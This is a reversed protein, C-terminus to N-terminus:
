HAVQEGRTLGSLALQADIQQLLRELGEASESEARAVLVAQTHSARLLWWGDPTTVRVGDIAVMDAGQAELRAKVEEVAAFKRAEDVAFRLEPTAMTEPMAGRLDTISRGLRTAAAILRLAAYIADDFGYWDDALFLHGSMEGALLAGSERLRAKMHSHGSKWMEARGGQARVRDFLARGTKIDGLVLAGPHRALLDEALIMLL